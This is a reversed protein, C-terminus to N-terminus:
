QLHTIPLRPQIKDGGKAQASKIGKLVQELKAMNGIGLDGAGWAIHLQRITSLYCKITSARQGSVALHTVRLLLKSSPIPPFHHLSCFALYREQASGYTRQTSPALGQQYYQEVARDLELIDPRTQVAHPSGPPSSLKSFHDAQPYISHSLHLKDRSLM